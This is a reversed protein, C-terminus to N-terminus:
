YRRSVSAPATTAAPEDKEEKSHKKKSEILSDEASRRKKEQVVKTAMARLAELESDEVSTDHDVSILRLTGTAATYAFHLTWGMGSLKMRTACGDEIEPVGQFLRSAENREIDCTVTDTKKWILDQMAVQPLYCARQQFASAKTSLSLRTPIARLAFLYTSEGITVNLKVGACLQARMGSQERYLKVREAARARSAKHEDAM